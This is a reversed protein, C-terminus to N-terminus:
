GGIYPEIPRKGVLQLVHDVLQILFYLSMLVFGVLIAFQAYIIPIKLYYSRRGLEFGRDIFTFAWSSAVVCLLLTVASSLVRALAMRQPKHRAFVLLIDAKIHSREWAAVSAGILYLWWISLMALESTGFLSTKVVNRLVVEAFVFGLSTVLSLVIIYQQVRALWKWALLATKSVRM